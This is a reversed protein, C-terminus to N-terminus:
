LLRSSAPLAAASDLVRVARTDATRAANPELYIDEPVIGYQTITSQIQEFWQSIVEPDECKARQYDYRRLYRSLLKHRKVFRTLWNPGVTSGPLRLQLLKNAM